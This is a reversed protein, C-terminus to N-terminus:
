SQRLGATEADDKERVVQNKRKERKERRDRRERREEGGPRLDYIEYMNLRLVLRVRGAKEEPGDRSMKEESEKAGSLLHELRM